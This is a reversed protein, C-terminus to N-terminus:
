CGNSEEQKDLMCSPCLTGDDTVTMTEQDGLDDGPRGCIDCTLEDQNEDDRANGIIKEVDFAEIFAKSMKGRLDQAPIAEIIDAKRPDKGEASDLLIKSSTMVDLGLEKLLELLQPKQRAKLYEEDIVTENGLDVGAEALM